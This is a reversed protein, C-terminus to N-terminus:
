YLLTLVDDGCIDKERVVQPKQHASHRSLVHQQGLGDGFHGDHLGTSRNWQHFRRVPHGLSQPFPKFVYSANPPLEQIWALDPDDCEGSSGSSGQGNLCRVSLWLNAYHLGDAWRRRMRFLCQVYQVLIRQGFCLTGAGIEGPLVNGAFPESPLLTPGPFFM